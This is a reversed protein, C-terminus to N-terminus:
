VLVQIGAKRLKQVGEGCVKPNPDLTCCVVKAIKAKIFAGACPPTKGYHNCPELNVYLTAGKATSKVSALTEIEAHPLGAKHHYGQGIIKGNKVIVAGVMPNPFTWGLGKKALRLSSKLYVIDKASFKDMM